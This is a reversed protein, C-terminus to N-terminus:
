ISTWQHYRIPNGGGTRDIIDAGDIVEFINKLIKGTVSGSTSWQILTAINNGKVNCTPGGPYLKGKGTNNRVFGPENYNGHVEAFTDIGTGECAKIEKGTFIIVCLVPTGDLLTM